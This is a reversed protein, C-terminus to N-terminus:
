LASAVLEGANVMSKSAEEPLRWTEGSERLAIRWGERGAARLLREIPEGVPERSLKFTSHHMPLIYNAGMEQMM